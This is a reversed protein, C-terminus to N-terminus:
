HHSFPYSKCSVLLLYLMPFDSYCNICTPTAKFGSGKERITGNREKSGNGDM